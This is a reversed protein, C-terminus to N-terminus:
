RAVLLPREEEFDGVVRRVPRILNGVRRGDRASWPRCTLREVISSCARVFVDLDELAGVVADALDQRARCGRSPERVRDDDERVVVAALPERAVRRQEVALRAQPLAADTHRRDDAPRPVDRRCRRASLDAIVISRLADIRAASRRALGGLSGASSPM